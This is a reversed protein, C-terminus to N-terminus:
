YDARWAALAVLERRPVAAGSLICTRGKRRWTVVERAGSRLFHFTIGGQHSSQAPPRPLARGDVITYAIRRGRDVYYVTVADHGQLRDSRAGSASWGFREEWRPFRIGGIEHDLLPADDYRGPPGTTPERLALAAAEAVTPAEPGGGPVLLLAVAAAAAAAALGAALGRVPRRRPAPRRELRARLRAPAPGSASRVADLARRQRALLETLEASAAVRREVEARREEPLSGDALAAVDALDRDRDEMECRLIGEPRGKM